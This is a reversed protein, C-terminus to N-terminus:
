YQSEFLIESDFRMGAESVNSERKMARCAPPTESLVTLLQSAPRRKQCVMCPAGHSPLSESMSVWAFFPTLFSTGSDERRALRGGTVRSCMCERRKPRSRLSGISMATHAVAAVAKQLQQRRPSSVMGESEPKSGLLCTVRPEGRMKEEVAKPDEVPVSNAVREIGHDLVVAKEPASM